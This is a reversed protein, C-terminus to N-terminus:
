IELQAILRGLTLRQQRLEVLTSRPCGPRQAATSLQDCLDLTRAAETLLLQEGITLEDPYKEIVSRWLARGANGLDRPAYKQRSM